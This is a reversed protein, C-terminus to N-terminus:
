LLLLWPFDEGSQPERRYILHGNLTLRRLAAATGKLEAAVAFASQVAQQSSVTTDRVVISIEGRDAVVTICESAVAMEGPSPVPIKPQRTAVVSKEARVLTSEVTARAAALVDIRPPVEGPASNVEVAAGGTACAPMQVPHATTKFHEYSRAACEYALHQTQQTPRLEHTRSSPEEVHATAGAPRSTESSMARWTADWAAYLDDSQRERVPAAVATSRQSSVDGTIM